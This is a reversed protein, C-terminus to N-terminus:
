RLPPFQESILRCTNAVTNGVTEMELLAGAYLTQRNGQLAQLRLFYGSALETPEPHPFYPWAKQDVRGLVRPAQDGSRPLAAVTDVIRRYILDLDVDPAPMPALSFFVAVDCDAYVKIYGTYDLLGPLPISGVVGAPVGEVRCATTVFTYYRVAAFMRTEQEDLDLGLRQLTPLDLPCAIVLRDFHRPAQGEFAIEVGIDDTGPNLCRRISTITTNLRVDVGSAVREWLDQFGKSFVRPWGHIVGLIHLVNSVWNRLGQFKVFYAAPVEDLRGYGQVQMVYTATLELADLRMARLWTSTPQLLEAPVGALGTGPQAFQRYRTLLMWTYRLSAWGVQLKSYGGLTSAAMMDMYKRQDRNFVLVKQWGQSPAGVDEAIRMVQTYGALMEHAALDIAHGQYDFTLCKGGVRGAKEFVTVNRYGNKKLLWATALGAPGAGVIAIRPDARPQGKASAPSRPARAPWLALAFAATILAFLAIQPWSWFLIAAVLCISWVLANTWKLASPPGGTSNRGVVVLNIIAVALVMVGWTVIFGGITANLTRRLGFFDIEYNAMLRLLERGAADDVHIPLGSRNSVFHLLALVVLGYSGLRFWRSDNL